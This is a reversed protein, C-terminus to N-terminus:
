RQNELAKIRSTLDDIQTQQQEILTQQAKNAEVLPAILGIYNLTKYGDAKTIVLEPFVAEVEQALLGFEVVPVVDDKMTFTYGNLQLLANLSDELAVINDKLRMDSVDQLVGTYSIDGVVDLESEPTSKNIGVHAVGYLGSAYIVDGINMENSATGSSVDVNYGIIINSQGDRLSNASRSGIIVNQSNGSGTLDRAAESGIIVNDFGSHEFDGSFGGKAAQYGILVNRDGGIYMGSEAGVATNNGGGLGGGTFLSLSGLATNRSGQFDMLAENGLATLGFGGTVNRAAYMGIATASEWEIGPAFAEAARAGFATSFNSNTNSSLANFGVATSSQATTTAAGAGQGVFLNASSYSTTADSLDNLAGGGGGGASQWNTGDCVLVVGGGDFDSDAVLTTAGQPYASCDDGAGTSDGSLQASAPLSYFFVMSVILLLRMM